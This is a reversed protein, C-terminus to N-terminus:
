ASTRASSPRSRTPWAGTSSGTGTFSGTVFPVNQGIVIKAEENDLAVLNPTSLVNAGAESELFRALAGLTGSRRQGGPDPRRWATAWRCARPPPPPREALLDDDDVSQRHQRDRRPQHRGRLGYKDGNKGLLGQRQIGFEATKNADIKVIM